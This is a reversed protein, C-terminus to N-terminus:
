TLYLTHTLITAHRYTHAYTTRIQTVYAYRYQLNLFFFHLTVSGARGGLNLFLFTIYHM